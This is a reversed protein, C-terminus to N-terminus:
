PAQRRPALPTGGRSSSRDAVPAVDRTRGGAADGAADGAVDGAVDGALHEGPEAAPDDAAAARERGEEVLQKVRSKSLSSAAAIRDYSWGAERLETVAALRVARVAGMAEDVAALVDSADDIRAIAGEIAAVSAVEEDIAVRM